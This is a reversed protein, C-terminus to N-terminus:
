HSDAPPVMAESAWLRWTFGLGASLYFRNRVLPSGANVGGSLTRMSVMLGVNLEDDYQYSLSTDLFYSHLGQRARYSPRTTTAYIPDVGYYYQNYRRSAYMLGGDLRLILKEMRPLIDYREYRLSPEAVWGLFTQSTDAAIRLPLHLSLKDADHHEIIWNLKPGVQGVLHLAPMGRRADNSNRVPLGFSFSLDLSLGDAEFLRGRVGDRDARLIEGRYILYPLGLPLTYRQDSGVYQPITFIGGALGIEWLPKPIEEAVAPVACALILFALLIRMTSFIQAM